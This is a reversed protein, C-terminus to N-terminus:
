GILGVNSRRRHVPLKKVSARHGRLTKLNWDVEDAQNVNVITVTGDRHGVALQTGDANFSPACSYSSSQRHLQRNLRWDDRSLFLLEDSSQVVVQDQAPSLTFDHAVATKLVVQPPQDDDLLNYAVLQNDYLEFLECGDASCVMRDVQSGSPLQYRDLLEGSQPDLKVISGFAMGFLSKEDPALALAFNNNTPFDGISRNRQITLDVEWIQDLDPRCRFYIKNRRGLCTEFRPRHDIVKARHQLNSLDWAFVQGDDHSTLIESRTSLDFM